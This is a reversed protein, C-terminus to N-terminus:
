GFKALAQDVQQLQDSLLRVQTEIKTRDPSDPMPNLKDLKKETNYKLRNTKKVLQTRISHHRKSLEEKSMSSFDEEKKRLSSEAIKKAPHDAVPAPLNQIENIQELTPIIGQQEFAEKLPYLRDMLGSLRDIQESLDKRKDMSEKDNKEGIDAMARHLIARHKFAESFRLTLVQVSEPMNKFKDSDKQEAVKQEEKVPTKPGEDQNLLEAPVEDAFQPNDTDRFWNIAYRMTNILMRMCIPTNGHMKLSRVKLPQFRMQELLQIGKEWSRRHYDLNLWQIAEDRADYYQKDLEM